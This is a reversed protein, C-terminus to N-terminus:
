FTNVRQQGHYKFKKGHIKITDLTILIVKINVTFLIPLQNIMFTKGNIQYKTYPTTM